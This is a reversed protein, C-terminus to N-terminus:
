PIQGLFKNNKLTLNRLFSLNGIHPSISGVLKHSHLDLMTVRQHNQGCIVGPWQCFNNSDIDNWSSLVGLPDHTIMTKFMLLLLRDTENNVGVVFTALLGFWWLLIFAYAHM